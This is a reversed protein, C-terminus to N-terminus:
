NPQIEHCVKSYTSFFFVQAVPTLGQSHWFHSNGPPDLPMGGPFLKLDPGRLNCKWCEPAFILTNSCLVSMKLNQGKQSFIEFSFYATLQPSIALLNRWGGARISFVTKNWWDKVAQCSPLCITSFCDSQKSGLCHFQVLVEDSGNYNSHSSSFWKTHINKM